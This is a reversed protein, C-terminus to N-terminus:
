LKTLIKGGNTLQISCTENNNDTGDDTATADRSNALLQAGNSCGQTKSGNTMIATINLGVETLAFHM